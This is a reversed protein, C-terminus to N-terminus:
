VKIQSFLQRASCTVMYIARNLSTYKHSELNVKSWKFLKLIGM